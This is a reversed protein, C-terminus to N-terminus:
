RTLRYRVVSPVDLEDRQVGWFSEDDIRMPQFREPLSIVGLFHGEADFVDWEGSGLDQLDVEGSAAMEAAGRVHQVWVTGDPGTLVQALAPYHDAFSANQLLQDITAPPAGSQEVMMRRIADLMAQKEADTVPKPVFSKKVIRQLVGAADRVEIRYESNQAILLTGDAGTDWLPEPDFFRFRAAGGQVTFTTGESLMALTDSTAEGMTVVADGQPAEGEGAMGMAAMSRLQAVVRDGALEDWRMPVGKTLDLPIASPTTGDLGFRTIRANGVDAVWVEQGVVFVGTAQRSLEEPGGGPGGLTQRYAGDPGFVRVEAAQFDLVYVNGAADIDMGMVMGFQAEEPGDIGGIRREEVFSWPSDAGWTGEEPNVVVAVGASDELTGAWTSADPNGCAALFPVIFLGTLALHPNTM